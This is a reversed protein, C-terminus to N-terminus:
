FESFGGGFDDFGGGMDEYGADAMGPDEMGAADTADAAMHQVILIPAPFTSPLQAVLRGLADMGGASAGVVLIRSVKSKM